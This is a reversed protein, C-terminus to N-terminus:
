PHIDSFCCRILVEAAQGSPGTPGPDWCSRRTRPCGRAPLGGWGTLRGKVQVFPAIRGRARARQVRRPPGALAPIPAM